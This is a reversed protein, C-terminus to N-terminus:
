GAGTGLYGGAAPAARGALREGGDHQRDRDAGGRRASAPQGAPETRGGARAPAGPRQQPRLSRDGRRLAHRGGGARPPARRPCPRRPGPRRATGARRAARGARGDTRRRRLHRAAGHANVIAPLGHMLCDLVSASTEGRTQARLQVACDSAALWDQYAAASVFSTIRIREPIGSAAIRRQLDIGYPGPDNAGVFVLRCRPDAALPSALFADLLRHNLKTAGLMGFSSVVYDGAGIGLRERAAQRAAAIDADLADPAVQGRLLPITRWGDASGPGYWQEALRRSFDSHIIVGAARELVEKNCPYQWIAANRGAEREVQLGGYGHSLYLAQLFAEPVDGDREMNDLVGSLFFDHLVVTGPHRRLMAFMHKHANSNGFHYLIRDYGAGHRMFYAVDRQVFRQLSAEPMVGPTLVLEVAYHRELELLLEASYDAIGSHEPPLPSVLALTPKASTSASTSAVAAPQAGLTALADWLAAGEPSNASNTGAAAAAQLAAADVSAVGPLAPATGDIGAQWAGLVADPALAALFGTRLTAAAHRRWADASGNDIRPQAYVHFRDADLLGDLAQRLVEIDAPHRGSVAVRIDHGGRERLLTKALGLLLATDHSPAAQPACFDIILRMTM